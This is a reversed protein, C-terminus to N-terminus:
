TFFCLMFHIQVKFTTIGAVAELALPKSNIGSSWSGVLIVKARAECLYRVTSALGASQPDLKKNDVPLITSDFRVMVVKGFLEEKPFQGLTQVHPFGRLESDYCAEAKDLAALQSKVEIM